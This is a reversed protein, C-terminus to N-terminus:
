PSAEAPPLEAVTCAVVLRGRLWHRSTIRAPGYGVILTDLIRDGVAPEGAFTYPLETPVSGPAPNLEHELVGDTRRALCLRSVKLTAANM